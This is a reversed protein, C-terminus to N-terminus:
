ASWPSSKRLSPRVLSCAITALANATLGTLCSMVCALAKADYGPFNAVAITETQQASQSAEPHVDDKTLAHRGVGGGILRRQIIDRSKGIDHDGAPTCAHNIRVVYASEKTFAVFQRKAVNRDLRGPRNGETLQLM